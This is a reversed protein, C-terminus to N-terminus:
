PREIYKQMRFNRMFACLFGCDSLTSMNSEKKNFYKYFFNNNSKLIIM